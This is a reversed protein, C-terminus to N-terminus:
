KNHHKKTTMSATFVSLKNARLLELAKQVDSVDEFKKIVISNETLSQYAKDGLHNTLLVNVRLSALQQALGKGNGSSNNLLQSTGDEAVLLVTKTKGFLKSVSSLLPNEQNYTKIPIAIM